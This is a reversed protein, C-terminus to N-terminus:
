RSTAPCCEYMWSCDQENVHKVIVYPANDESCYQQGDAIAEARSIGCDGYPPYYCSSLNDVIDTCNVPRSTAVDYCFFGDDPPLTPTSDDGGTQAELERMSGGCCEYM